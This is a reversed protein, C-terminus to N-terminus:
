SAALNETPLTCKTVNSIIKELKEYLQKFYLMNKIDLSNVLSSTKSTHPVKFIFKWM